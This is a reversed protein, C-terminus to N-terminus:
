DLCALHLTDGAAPPLVDVPRLVNDAKDLRM